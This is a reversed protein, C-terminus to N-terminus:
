NLHDLTGCFLLLILLFYEECMRVNWYGVEINGILLQAWAVLYNRYIDFAPNLTLNGSIRYRGPETLQITKEFRYLGNAAQGDHENYKVSMEQAPEENITTYYESKMAIYA